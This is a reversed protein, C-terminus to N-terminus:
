IGITVFSPFSWTVTGDDFFPCLLAFNFSTFVEFHATPVFSVRSMTFHEYLAHPPLNVFRCKRSNRDAVGVQQVIRCKWKRRKSEDAARCRFDFQKYYIRYTRNRGIDGDCPFNPISVFNFKPRFISRHFYYLFCTPDQQCFSNHRSYAFYCLTQVPSLVQQSEELGFSSSILMGKTLLGGCRSFVVNRWKGQSFLIIVISIALLVCFVCLGGLLTCRM